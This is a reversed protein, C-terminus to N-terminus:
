YAAAAAYKQTNTDGSINFHATDMKTMPLQHGIEDSATIDIKDKGKGWVVAYLGVAIVIAGIISCNMCMSVINTFVSQVQKNTTIIVSCCILRKVASLILFVYAGIHLKEALVISGIVAVIIMCLPNFATVFVPGRTQM